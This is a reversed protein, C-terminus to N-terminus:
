NRMILQQNIGIFFAASAAKQKPLVLHTPLNRPLQEQMARVGVDM